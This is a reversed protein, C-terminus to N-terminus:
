FTNLNEAHAPIDSITQTRGDFLAFDSGTPGQRNAACILEIKDNNSDHNYYGERHLLIVVDAIEEVSASDKLNSLHPKNNENGEASRGIQHLLVIPIKMEKALSKLERVIHEIKDTKSFYNKGSERIHSLQDIYVIDIKYRIVWSKIQNKLDHLSMMSSDNIWVPLNSLAGLAHGSLTEIDQDSMKCNTVCWLPIKTQNSIIREDLEDARMELSLVGIQHGMIAQNLILQLATATKGMKPRGAIVILNGPKAGGTWRNMCDLGWLLGSANKNKLREDLNKLTGRMAQSIHLDKQTGCCIIESIRNMVNEVADSAKPNNQVINKIDEGLHSLSRILSTNKVIEAYEKIRSSVGAEENCKALHIMMATKDIAHSTVTVSDAGAGNDILKTIIEWAEQSEPFFLDKPKIDSVSYFARNNSLVASILAKEATM